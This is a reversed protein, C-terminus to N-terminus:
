SRSVRPPDPFVLLMGVLFGTLMSWGTSHGVRILDSAASCATEVPQNSLIAWGLRNLPELAFGSINDRLLAASILNTRSQAEGIWELPDGLDAEMFQSYTSALLSRAYFLGGLFDDGYPTLGEGLGVLADAPQFVGKLDHSRCARAIREVAQWAIQTLRQDPQFAPIGDRDAAIQLIPQIFTGVEVPTERRLVSGVVAELLGPVQRIAIVQTAPLAPPEWLHSASFDLNVGPELCISQAQILFPSDVEVRPLPHPWLICRRHKPSQPSALWVLKGDGTLLYVAHQVAALVRGRQGPFLWARAAEGMIPVCCSKVAM